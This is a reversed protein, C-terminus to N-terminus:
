ANIQDPSLDHVSEELVREDAGAAQDRQDGHGDGEDGGGEVGVIVFRQDDLQHLVLLLARQVDFTVDFEGEPGLQACVKALDGQGFMVAALLEGAHFACLYEQGHQWQQFFLQHHIRDPDVAQMGVDDTELVAAGVEVVQHALPFGLRDFEIDIADLDGVGGEVQGVLHGIAVQDDAVQFEVGAM